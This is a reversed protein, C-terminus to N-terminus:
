FCVKELSQRLIFSLSRDAALTVLGDVLRGFLYQGCEMEMKETLYRLYYLFIPLEVARSRENAMAHQIASVLRSVASTPSALTKRSAANKCLPLSQLLAVDLGRLIMVAMERAQVYTSEKNERVIEDVEVVLKPPISSPSSSSPSSSSSSPIHGCYAYFLRYISDTFSHVGASTLDTMRHLAVECVITCLSPELRDDEDDDDNINNINNNDVKEQQFFANMLYHHHHHHHVIEELTLLLLSLLPEVFPLPTSFLGQVLVPLLSVHKTYIVLMIKKILYCTISPFSSHFSHLAKQFTSSLNSSFSIFSDASTSAIPSISSTQIISPPIHALLYFPLSHISIKKEEKEHEEDQEWQEFSPIQDMAQILLPVLAVGIRPLVLFLYCDNIVMLSSIFSSCTCALLNPPLHDRPPPRKQLSTFLASALLSYDEKESEELLVWKKIAQQMVLRNRVVMMMTMMTMM